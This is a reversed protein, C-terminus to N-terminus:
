QEERQECVCAYLHVESDRQRHGLLLALDPPPSLLSLFEKTFTSIVFRHLRFARGCLMVCYKSLM